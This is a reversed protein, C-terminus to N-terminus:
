LAVCYPAQSRKGGRGCYSFYVDRLRADNVVLGYALPNPILLVSVGYVRGPHPISGCGGEKRFTRFGLADVMLLRQLCREVEVVDYLHPSIAVRAIRVGSGPFFIDSLRVNRASGDRTDIAVLAPTKVRLHGVSENQEDVRMQRENVCWGSSEPDSDMSYSSWVYPYLCWSGEPHLVGDDALRRLGSVAAREIASDSAPPVGFWTPNALVANRAAARRAATKRQNVARRSEHCSRCSRLMGGDRSRPWASDCVGGHGFACRTCWRPRECGGCYLKWCQVGCVIVPMTCVACMVCACVCVCCGRVSAFVPTCVQTDLDARELRMRKRSRTAATAAASRTPAVDVDVGAGVGAGGNVGAPMVGDGDADAPGSASAGVHASTARDILDYFLQALVCSPVRVSM